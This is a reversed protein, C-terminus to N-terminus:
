AQTWCLTRPVVRRWLSTAEMSLTSQAQLRDSKGIARVKSLRQSFGVAVVGSSLFDDVYHAGSCARLVWLQEAM